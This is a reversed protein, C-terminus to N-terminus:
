DELKIEDISISPIVIETELYIKFPELDTSQTKLRIKHDPEVSNVCLTIENIDYYEKHILGPQQVKQKFTITQSKGKKFWICEDILFYKEENNDEIIWNSWELGPHSFIKIEMKGDSSLLMDKNHVIPKNDSLTSERSFINIKQDTAAYDLTLLKNIASRKTEDKFLNKNSELLNELSQVKSEMEQKKTNDGQFRSIVSKYYELKSVSKNTITNEINLTNLNPTRLTESLNQLTSDFNIKNFVDDYIVDIKDSIIIVRNKIANAQQFKEKIDTLKKFASILNM